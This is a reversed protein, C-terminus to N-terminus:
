RRKRSAFCTMLLVTAGIFLSFQGPEPIATLGLYGGTGDVRDVQFDFGSITATNGDNMSIAGSDTNLSFVGSNGESEIFRFSSAVNHSYDDGLDLDILAGLGSAAGTRQNAIIPGAGYTFFLTGDQLQFQGTTNISGGSYFFSANESALNSSGVLINGTVNLTGGAVTVTGTAGDNVRAIELDNTISLTGGTLSVVGTGTTNAGVRLKGNIDVTGGDMSLTGTSNDLDGLFVLNGSSSPDIFEITDGTTATVTHRVRYSTNQDWRNSGLWTSTANIPGDTSSGINAHVHSFALAVAGITLSFSKNM